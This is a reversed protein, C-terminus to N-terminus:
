EKRRFINSIVSFLTYLVVVPVFVALLAAPVQVAISDASAGMFNAILTIM